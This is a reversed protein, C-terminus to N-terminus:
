VGAPARHTGIRGQPPQMQLAHLRARGVAMNSNPHRPSASPRTETGVTSLDIYPEYGEESMKDIKTDEGNTGVQDTNRGM